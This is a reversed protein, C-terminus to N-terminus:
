SQNMVLAALVVTGASPFFCPKGKVLVKMHSKNLSADMCRYKVPRHRLM